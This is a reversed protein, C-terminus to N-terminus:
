AAGLKQTGNEGIAYSDALPQDLTESSSNIYIQGRLISIGAAGGCLLAVALLFVLIRITRKSHM